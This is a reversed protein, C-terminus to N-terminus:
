VNADRARSVPHTNASSLSACVVACSEYASVASACARRAPIGASLTTFQQGSSRSRAQSDFGNDSRRCHCGCMLSQSETPRQPNPPLVIMGNLLWACRLFNACSRTSPFIEFWVNSSHFRSVPLLFSGSRTPDFDLFDLAAFDVPLRRAAFFFHARLRRQSTWRDLVSASAM